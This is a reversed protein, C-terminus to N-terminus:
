CILINSSSTRFVTTMVLNPMKSHFTIDNPNLFAVLMKEHVIASHEFTPNILEKIDKHIIGVNMTNVPTIM